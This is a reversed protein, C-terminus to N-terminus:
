VLHPNFVPIKGLARNIAPSHKPNYITHTGLFGSPLAVSFPKHKHSVVEPVVIKVKSAPLRDIVVNLRKLNTTVTKSTTGMNAIRVGVKGANPGTGAVLSKVTGTGPIPIPPKPWPWVGGKLKKYNYKGIKNKKTITVKVKVKRGRKNIKKTNSKLM